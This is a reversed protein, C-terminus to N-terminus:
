IMKKPKVEIVVNELWSEVDEKKYRIMKNLKYYKPGSQLQRLKRLYTDTLGFMVAIEGTTYFKM